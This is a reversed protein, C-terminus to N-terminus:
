IHEKRLKIIDSILRGQLVWSGAMKIEANVTKGTLDEKSVFRVIKNTRTRGKNKSEVLIQQASGILMNNNNMSAKEVVKMLRQLRDNIIDKPVQGPMQAAKTGPRPDFALTNCADLQLMELLDLTNKFQEETESPFGAIIDSTIAAGPVTSRIKAVLDSYYKRSYGRNMKKLITDDGSQLPLHFYECVKPLEAVSRIIEDSMDRPHSTLFKIREIGDIKSVERLLDALGYKYSNVNQGLLTVEKFISKDLTEIEKIIDRVPRSKERGRVYPVICYSCFNDCGEMITIWANVSPKRKPELKWDRIELRSNRGSSILSDLNSILSEINPGCVFDIFKFKKKAEEKLREAMCGVLGILVSPRQKKIKQLSHIFGSAKREAGDRVSCTNAIIIDAKNVDDTPLYGKSELLGAMIESDNENM